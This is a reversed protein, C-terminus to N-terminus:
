HMLIDGAPFVIKTAWILGPDTKQTQWISNKEAQNERRSPLIQKHLFSRMKYMELIHLVWPISDDVM